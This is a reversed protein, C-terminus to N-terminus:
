EADPGPPQESARDADATGDDPRAYEAGSATAFLLVLATLLVLGMPVGLAIRIGGFEILRGAFPLGLLQLTIAPSRAWRREQQLGRAMLVLAVAVFVSLGIEALPFAVETQRQRTFLDVTLVTALVFMFAAEVWLLWVLV